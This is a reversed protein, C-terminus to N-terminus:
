QAVARAAAQDHDAITTQAARAVVEATVRQTEDIRPHHTKCTRYPTPTGDPRYVPHAGLRWCGKVHCNHHRIVGVLAGILVVEGVDSGFGSWFNYWYPSSSAKIGTVVLIWSWVAHM